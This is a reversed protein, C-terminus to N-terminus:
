LINGSYSTAIWSIGNQPFQFNGMAVEGKHTLEVLECDREKLDM